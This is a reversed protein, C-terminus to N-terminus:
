RASIGSSTNVPLANFYTGDAAKYADKVNDPTSPHNVLGGVQSWIFNATFDKTLIGNLQDATMAEGAALSNVIQLNAAGATARAYWTLSRVQIMATMEPDMSRINGEIAASGEELATLFKQGLDLTTTQLNPDRDALKKAIESDLTARFAVIEDYVSMFGINHRNDQYQRGPNGLGAIIFM